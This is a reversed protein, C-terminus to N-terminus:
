AEPPDLLPRADLRELLFVNHWQGVHWNEVSAHLYMSGLLLSEDWEIQWEEGETENEHQECELACPGQDAQINMWPIVLLALWLTLSACPSIRTFVQSDM